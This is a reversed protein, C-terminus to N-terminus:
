VGDEGIWDLEFAGPTDTITDNGWSSLYEGNRTQIVDQYYGSPTGDETSGTVKETIPPYFYMSKVDTINLEERNKVAEMNDGINIPVSTIAPITSGERLRLEGKANERYMALLKGEDNHLEKILRIQDEDLINELDKISGLNKEYELVYEYLLAIHEKATDYSEIMFNALHLGNQHFPRFVLAFHTNAQNDGKGYIHHDEFGWLSAGQYGDRHTLSPRGNELATIQGMTFEDLSKNLYGKDASIQDNEEPLETSSWSKDSNLGRKLKNKESKIQSFYKNSMNDEDKPIVLSSTIEKLAKVADTTEKGQNRFRNVRDQKTRVNNLYAMFNEVQNSYEGGELLAEEGGIEKLEQESLSNKIKNVVKARIEADQMFGEKNVVDGVSKGDEYQRLTDSLGFEEIIKNLGTKYNRGEQQWNPDAESFNKIIANTIYTDVGDIATPPEVSLKVLTKKGTKGDKLELGQYRAILVLRMSPEGEVSLEHDPNEKMWDRALQKAVNYRAVEGILGRSSVRQGDHLVTEGGHHELTLINQLVGDYINRAYRYIKERGNVEVQMQNNFARNYEGNELAHLFVALKPDEIPKYTGDENQVVEIRGEISKHEKVNKIFAKRAEKNSWLAGFNEGEGRMSKIIKIANIISPTDLTHIAEIINKPVQQNIEGNEYTDYLRLLGKSEMQLFKEWEQKRPESYGDRNVGQWDIAMQQNRQAIPDNAYQPHDAPLLQGGVVGGVWDKKRVSGRLRKSYNQLSHGINSLYQKAGNMLTSTISSTVTNFEVENSDTLFDSSKDGNPTLKAKLSVALLGKAIKRGQGIKEGIQNSLDGIFSSVKKAEPNDWLATEDTMGPMNARTYVESLIRVEHAQSGKAYKGAHLASAMNIVPVKHRLNQLHRRIRKQGGYGEVVQERIEPDDCLVENQKLFIERKSLGKTDLKYKIRELINNFKDEINYSLM